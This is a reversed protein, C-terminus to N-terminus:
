APNGHDTGSCINSPRKRVVHGMRGRLIRWETRLYEVCVPYEYGEFIFDRSDDIKELHLAIFEGDENCIYFDAILKYKAHGPLIIPPPRFVVVETLEDVPKSDDQFKGM